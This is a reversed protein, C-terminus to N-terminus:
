HTYVPADPTAHVNPTGPMNPPVTSIIPLSKIDVPKTFTFTQSIMPAEVFSNKGININYNGFLAGEFYDAEQLCISSTACGTNGRAIIAFM